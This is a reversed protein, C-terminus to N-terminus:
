LSRGLVLFCRIRRGLEYAALISVPRAMPEFNRRQLASSAHISETELKLERTEQGRRACGELRVGQSLRVVISKQM